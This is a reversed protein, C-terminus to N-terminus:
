AEFRAGSDLADDVIRHSVALSDPRYRGAATELKLHELRAAQGPSELTLADFLKDALASLSVLDENGRSGIDRSGRGTSRELQETQQTKGLSSATTGAN